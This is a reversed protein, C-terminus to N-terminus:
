KVEIRVLGQVWRSGSMGPMVARLGEEDLAVLCDSCATLESWEVEVQYGNDAVLTIRSAESAAGAMQMLDNIRWGQHTQLGGRPHEIEITVSQLVSQAMLDLSLERTVRGGITLGHPSVWQPSTMTAEPTPALTSAESETLGWLGRNAKRAETELELFLYDYRVDPPYTAAVAYGLRVMEANVFTDGTYVYRLLRGYRDIESVDKELYVTTGEVLKANQETARQYYVENREPADMGIYRLSRVQGDISVRITDGDIVSVVQARTRGPVPTVTPAAPPLDPVGVCASLLM